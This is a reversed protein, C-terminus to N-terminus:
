IVLLMEITLYPHHLFNQPCSLTSPNIDALVEYLSYLSSTNHFIILTIKRQLKELSMIKDEILQCYGEVWTSFLIPISPFFSLFFVNLIPNQLLVFVM